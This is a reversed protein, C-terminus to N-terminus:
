VTIGAPQNPQVFGAEFEHPWVIQMNGDPHKVLWQTEEIKVLRDGIKLMAAYSKGGMYKVQANEFHHQGGTRISEKQEDTLVLQTADVKKYFAPM